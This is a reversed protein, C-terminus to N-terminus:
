SPNKPSVPSSRSTPPESRSRKAKRRPSPSSRIRSKPSPSRRSRVASSRGLKRASQVPSRSPSGSRDRLDRHRCRGARPRRRRRGPSRRRGARLAARSTGARLTMFTDDSGPQAPVAAAAIILEGRATGGHPAAHWRESRRRHSRGAADGALDAVGGRGAGPSPPRHDPRQLVQGPPQPQDPHRAVVVALHRRPAVEPLHHDLAVAEAELHGAAAEVFM